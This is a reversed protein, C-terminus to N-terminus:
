AIIQRLSQCFSLVTLEEKSFGILGMIKQLSNTHIKRLLRVLRDYKIIPFAAMYGIEIAFCWDGVLERVKEDGAQIRAKLANTQKSGNSSLSLQRDFARMLGSFCLGMNRNEHVIRATNTYFFDFVEDEEALQGEIALMAAEDRVKCLRYLM